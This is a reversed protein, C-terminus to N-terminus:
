NPNIDFIIGGDYRRISLQPTSFAISFAAMFNQYNELYFFLAIVPQLNVTGLDVILCKRGVLNIYPADIIANHGHERLDSQTSCIVFTPQTIEEYNLNSFLAERISIHPSNILDAPPDPLYKITPISHIWERRFPRNRVLLSNLILDGLWNLGCVNCETNLEIDTELTGELENFNKIFENFSNTRPFQNVGFELVYENYIMSISERYRLYGTEYYIHDNKTLGADIRENLKEFALDYNKILFGQFGGEYGQDELKKKFLIKDKENKNNFYYRCLDHDKLYKLNYLEFIKELDTVELSKIITLLVKYRRDDFYSTIFLGKKLTQQIIAIQPESLM